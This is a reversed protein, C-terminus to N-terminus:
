RSDCQKWMLRATETLPRLNEAWWFEDEECTANNIVIVGCKGERPMGVCCPGGGEVHAGIRLKGGSDHARRSIVEFIAAEKPYRM